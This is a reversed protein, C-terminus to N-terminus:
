EVPVRLRPTIGLDMMGGRTRRWEDVARLEQALGSPVTVVMMGLATEVAEAASELAAASVVTQRRAWEKQATAFAHIAVHFAVIPSTIDGTELTDSV